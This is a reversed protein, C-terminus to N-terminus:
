KNIRHLFAAMADRNTADLPRYTGDAWGTSVGTAKMWEIPTRYMNDTGVDTFSSTAPVTIAPSGARRYLFAAMADRAVPTTPRFTGDPWGTTIGTSAAWEIEKYYMTSPTVDSFTQGTPTFVPSGAMRYIYAIMADRNIPTVPRYTGDPWGTTIGRDKLWCIDSAFQDGTHVDVFCNDDTGTTPPNTTPPTTVPPTTGPDTPGTTPPQTTPPTTTPPTTTPPTTGDTRPVVTLKDRDAWPRTPFSSGPYGAYMKAHAQNNTAGASIAPQNPDLAPMQALDSSRLPNGNGNGIGSPLLNFQITKWKFVMNPNLNGQTNQNNYWVPNPNTATHNVAQKWLESGETLFGGSIQESRPVWVNGDGATAVQASWIGPISDGKWVSPSGNIQTTVSGARHYEDNVANKYLGSDDGAMSARFVDSGQLTAQDSVQTTQYGAAKLFDAMASSRTLGAAKSGAETVCKYVNDYSDTYKQGSPSNQDDNVMIVNFSGAGDAMVCLGDHALQSDARATGSTALSIGSIILAAGSLGAAVKRLSHHRSM